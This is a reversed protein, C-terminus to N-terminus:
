FCGILPCAGSSCVCVFHEITDLIVAILPLTSCIELHLCAQLVTELLSLLVLPCDQDMTLTQSALIRAISNGAVAILRTFLRM